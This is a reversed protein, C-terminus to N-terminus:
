ATAMFIIRVAGNAKRAAPRSKPGTTLVDVIKDKNAVIFKCIANHVPADWTNGLLVGIEEQQAEDLTEFVKGNAKFSQTREIM